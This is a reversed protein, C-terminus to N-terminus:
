FQKLVLNLGVIYLTNLSQMAIAPLGARYIRICDAPLVRGSFVPFRRFVPLIVILMALWQGLVTAVAAGRIGM